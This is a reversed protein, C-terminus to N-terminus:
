SSSFSPMRTKRLLTAPRCAKEAMASGLMLLSFNFHRVQDLFIINARSNWSHPNLTTGKGGEDVRCPGLEMLLGTFSSCGPGGNLWLLLPDTAPKSRSEFFWFYFHKENDVDLYGSVQKVNPDCLQQQESVRLSYRPFAQNTHVTWAHLNAHAEQPEDVSEIVSESQRFFLKNTPTALAGWFLLNALISKM